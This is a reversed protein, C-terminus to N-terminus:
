LRWQGAQQNIMWAPPCAPCTTDPRAVAQAVISAFDEAEYPKALFYDPKVKSECHMEEVVTGSIMISVLGPYKHRVRDILQLGNLGGMSFDTVLLSPAELSTELFSLAAEASPFTRVRLGAKRLAISALELMLPDDDVVLVPGAQSFRNKGESASM